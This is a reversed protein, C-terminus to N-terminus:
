FLLIRTMPQILADGLFCSFSIKLASITYWYWNVGSGRSELGRTARLFDNKIIM